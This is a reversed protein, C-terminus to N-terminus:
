NPIQVLEAVIDAMGSSNKIVYAHEYGQDCIKFSMQPYKQKMGEAYELPCWQDTTGFYFFLKDLNQEVTKKDLDYIEEMEFRGMTLTRRIVRHNFLKLASDFICDPTSRGLFYIKLLFKKVATPLLTAPWVLTEVLSQFRLLRTFGVGNPTIRMKEITPFLMFCKMVQACKDVEMTQTRRIVELWTKCGVSHGIGIVKVHKPVHEEM